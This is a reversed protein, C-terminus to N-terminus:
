PRMAGYGDLKWVLKSYNIKPMNILVLKIRCVCM